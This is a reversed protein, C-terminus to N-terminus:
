AKNISSVINSSIKRIFLNIKMTGTINQKNIIPACAYAYANFIKPM